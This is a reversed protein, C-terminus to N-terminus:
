DEGLHKNAVDVDEKVEQYNFREIQGHLVNAILVDLLEEDDEDMYVILGSTNPMLNESVRDFITTTKKAKVYNTGVGALDGIVWGCLVGLPGGLIGIIAGILGGTAIRNGSEFDLSDKISFATGKGNKEIIAAQKIDLTNGNSIRKLRSLAEYNSANDEFTILAIKKM